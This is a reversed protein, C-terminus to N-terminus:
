EEDENDIPEVVAVWASRRFKHVSLRQIRSNAYHGVTIEIENTDFYGPNCREKYNLWNAAAEQSTRGDSQGQLSNNFFIAFPRTPRSVTPRASM